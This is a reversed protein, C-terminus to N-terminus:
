SIEGMEIMRGVMSIPQFHNPRRPYLYTIRHYAAPNQTWAIADQLALHLHQFDTPFWASKYGKGPKRVAVGYWHGTSSKEISLVYGNNTM